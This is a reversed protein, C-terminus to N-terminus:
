RAEPHNNLIEPEIMQLANTAAERLTVDSDSTIQMLQPVASKAGPGYAGLAEAAAIRGFKATPSSLCNTLAPVVRAAHSQDQGAIYGLSGAAFSIVAPDPDNLALLLPPIIAENTALGESIGFKAAIIKRYSCHTDALQNSLCPIAEKGIATLAMAARLSRNTATLDSMVATLEPIASNAREGLVSFGFGALQAKTEHPDEMIWLRLSPPVGNPLKRRWSWSGNRSKNRSYDYSLWRVLYPVVNTGMTRIAKAASGNNEDDASEYAYVELWKSLTKGGYSPEPERRFVLFLWVGLAVGVAAVIWIRRKSM